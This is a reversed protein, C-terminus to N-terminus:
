GYSLVGEVVGRSSWHGQLEGVGRKPSLVITAWAIEEPVTRYRFMVQVLRLVLEWRRGEPDEKHNVEKRWM